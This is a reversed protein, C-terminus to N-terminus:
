TPDPYVEQLWKSLEEELYRKTELFWEKTPAEPIKEMEFFDELGSRGKDGILLGFKVFDQSVTILFPCRDGEVEVFLTSSEFAVQGSHFRFLDQFDVETNFNDLIWNWDGEPVYDQHKSPEYWEVVGSNFERQTFISSLFFLAETNEM